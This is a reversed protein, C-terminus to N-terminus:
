PRRKEGDKRLPARGFLTSLRTQPDDLEKFPDWRMLANM